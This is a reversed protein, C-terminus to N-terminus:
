FGTLLLPMSLLTGLLLGLMIGIMATYRKERANM